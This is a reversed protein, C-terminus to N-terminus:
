PGDALPRPSRDPHVDPQGAAPGLPTAAPSAAGLFGVTLRAIQRAPM